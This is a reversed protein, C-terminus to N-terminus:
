LITSSLSRPFKISNNTIANNRKIINNSDTSIPTDPKTLQQEYKKVKQKLMENKFKEQNLEKRLQSKSKGADPVICPHHILSSASPRSVPNQHIMQKLFFNYM